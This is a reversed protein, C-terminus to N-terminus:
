FMLSHRNRKANSSLKLLIENLTPTGCLTSTISFSSRVPPRLDRGSLSAHIPENFRLPPMSRRKLSPDRVASAKRDMEASNLLTSSPPAQSSPLKLLLDAISYKCELSFREPFISAEQHMYLDDQYMTCSCYSDTDSADDGDETFNLESPTSLSNATSISALDPISFTSSLAQSNKSTLLMDMYFEEEQEDIDEFLAPSPSTSYVSGDTFIYYEDFQKTFLLDSHRFEFDYMQSAPSVEKGTSPCQPLGMTILTSPPCAM